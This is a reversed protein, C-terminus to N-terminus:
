GRKRYFITRASQIFLYSQIPLKNGHSRVQIVDRMQRQIWILSKWTIEHEIRKTLKREKVKESEGKKSYSNRNKEKEIMYQKKFGKKQFWSSVTTWIEM